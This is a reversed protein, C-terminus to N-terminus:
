NGYEVEAIRKESVLNLTIGDKKPEAYFSFEGKVFTVIQHNIREVLPELELKEKTAQNDSTGKISIVEKIKEESLKEASFVIETCNKFSSAYKGFFLEELFPIILIMSPVKNGEMEKELLIAVEIAKELRLKILDTYMKFFTAEDSLRVKEDEMNDVLRRLISAMLIVMQSAEVPHTIAKNKIFDLNPYIIEPNLKLELEKLRAKQLKRNLDSQKIKFQQQERIKILGNVLGVMIVYVLFRMELFSIFDRTYSMLEITDGFFIGNVVSQWFTHIIFLLFAFSVHKLLISLTLETFLDPRKKGAWMVLFMGIAMPIFAVIEVVFIYSFSYDLNDFRAILLSTLIAHYFTFIFATVTIVIYELRKTM